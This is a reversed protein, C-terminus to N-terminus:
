KKRHTYREMNQRRRSVLIKPQVHHQEGLLHLHHQISEVSLKGHNAPTILLKCGTFKEPAGGEDNNIHASDACIVANFSETKTALALVNAGTGNLVFYVDISSGFHEKFKDIAQKTWHDAGYAAAHGENANVMASLIEKHIGAYNDSAFSKKM